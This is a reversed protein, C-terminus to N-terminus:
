FRSGAGGGGFSGGGFSGGSFGGGSGFSGGSGGFIFPGGGRRGFGGDYDDDETQEERTLTHGCNTCTYIVSERKIGNRNSILTSGTRKLTHKKCKPCLSKRREILFIFVSIALFGLIAIGIISMTDEADNREKEPEFTMSGDLYGFVSRVGAVMGEDWKNDKLYPNMKQEQIRKCIADPLTGEIGYGTAFQICREETVLLIVLGNNTKKKGIGNHKGIQYAFDFCDQGAIEKVAVVVTEIGTRQELAYLVSDIQSVAGDSLIGDPNCVFRTKDQLHTMVIDKVEYEKAPCVTTWYFCFVTLLLIFKRMRHM